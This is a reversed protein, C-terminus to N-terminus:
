ITTREGPAEGDSPAPAAGHGPEVKMEDLTREGEEDAFLVRVFLREGLVRADTLAILTPTFAITDRRAQDVASRLRDHLERESAVDALHVSTTVEVIHSAAPRAALLLAAAVGLAALTRM